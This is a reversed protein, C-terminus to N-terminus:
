FTIVRKHCFKRSIRYFVCTLIYKLLRPKNQLCMKDTGGLFLKSDYKNNQM